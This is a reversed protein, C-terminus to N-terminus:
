KLIAALVWRTEIVNSTDWIHPKGGKILIKTLIIEDPGCLSPRSLLFNSGLAVSGPQRWDQCRDSVPKM